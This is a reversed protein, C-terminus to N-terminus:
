PRPRRVDRLSRHNAAFPRRARRAPAREHGDLDDAEHEPADLAQELLRWRDASMTTPM